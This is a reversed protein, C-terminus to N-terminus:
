DVYFENGEPDAMVVFYTGDKMVARLRAAGLATLREVFFDIEEAHDSSGVAAANTM